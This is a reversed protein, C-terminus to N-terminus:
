SRVHLARQGQDLLVYGLGLHVYDANTAVEDDARRIHAFHGRIEGRRPILRVLSDHGLEPLCGRTAM